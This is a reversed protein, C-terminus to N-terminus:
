AHVNFAKVCFGLLILHCVTKKCYYWPTAQMIVCRSVCCCCSIETLLDVFRGKREDGMSHGLIVVNKGM